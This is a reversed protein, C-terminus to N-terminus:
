DMIENSVGKQILFDNGLIDELTITDRKWFGEGEIIITIIFRGVKMKYNIGYLM